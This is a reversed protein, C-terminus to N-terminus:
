LLPPFQLGLSSCFLFHVHLLDTSFLLLFYSQILLSVWMISSTCDVLLTYVQHQVSLHSANLDILYKSFGKDLVTSAVTSGSLNYICM